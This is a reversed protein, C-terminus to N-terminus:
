CRHGMDEKRLCETIFEQRDTLEKMLVSIRTNAKRAIEELGRCKEEAVMKQTTIISIQKDKHTFLENM